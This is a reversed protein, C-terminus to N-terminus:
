RFAAQDIGCSILLEDPALGLLLNNIRDEVISLGYQLHGLPEPATVADDISDQGLM